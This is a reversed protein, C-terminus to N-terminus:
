PIAVTPNNNARLRRWLKVPWNKDMCPREVLVFLLLGLALVAPISAAYAISTREWAPV